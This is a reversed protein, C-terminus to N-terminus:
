DTFLFGTTLRGACVSFIASQLTEIAQNVRTPMQAGSARLDISLERSLRDVTNSPDEAALGQLWGDRLTPMVKAETADLASQYADKVERLQKIRTDLTKRWTTYARASVRWPITAPNSISGAGDDPLQFYQPSLSIGLEEGRWQQYQRKKQVLLIISDIDAIEDASLGITTALERCRALFRFADLDLNVADLAPTIDAGTADQAALAALDINGIFTHVAQEFGQSRQAEIAAIKQDIWIKRANWLDFVRDGATIALLNEREVLDPDIIPLPGNVGDRALTDELLWRDQTASLRWNLVQAAPLEPRLPDNSSVGAFGFLQELQAETVQNSDLTLQDLRDPRASLTGIGLREALASRTAANAIRAARLEEISAGLELLLSKYVDSFFSQPATLSKILRLVEVAIRAQNVPRTVRQYIDASTLRDFPQAFRATLEIASPGTGRTGVRLRREAFGMLELLYNTPALALEPSPPQFQTRISLTFQQSDLNQSVDKAQIELSYEGPFLDITKGWHDWNGNPNDVNAFSGKITGNDVKYQVVSVGSGADTATGSIHLHIPFSQSTIETSFSDVTLKPPTRDPPIVVVAAAGELTEPDSGPKNLQFNVFADVSITM